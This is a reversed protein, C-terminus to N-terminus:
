SFLYFHSEFLRFCTPHYVNPCDRADGRSRTSGDTVWDNDGERQRRWSDLHVWSIQGLRGSCSAHDALMLCFLFILYM